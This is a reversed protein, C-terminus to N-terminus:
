AKICLHPEKKEEEKFILTTDQVPNLNRLTSSIFTQHAQNCNVEGLGQSSVLFGAGYICYSAAPMHDVLHRYLITLTM